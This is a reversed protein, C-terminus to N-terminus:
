PAKPTTEARTIWGGELAKYLKLYDRLYFQRLEARTAKPSTVLAQRRRSIATIAAM